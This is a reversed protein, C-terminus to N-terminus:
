ASVDAHRRVAGRTRRETRGGFRLAGGATSSTASSKACGRTEIRARPAASSKAPHRQAEAEADNRRLLWLLNQKQARDTSLENYRRAVEAQKELAEIQSGLEQRIDSL